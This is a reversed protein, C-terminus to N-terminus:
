VASVGCVACEYVPVFVTDRVLLYRLLECMSCVCFQSIINGSQWM